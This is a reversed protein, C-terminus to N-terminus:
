RKRPFFGTQTRLIGMMEIVDQKRRAMDEVTNRMIVSDIQRRSVFYPIQNHPLEATGTRQFVINGDADTMRQVRDAARPLLLHDVSHRIFNEGVAKLKRCLMVAADLNMGAQVSVSRRQIM